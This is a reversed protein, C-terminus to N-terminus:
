VPARAQLWREYDEPYDFDESLDDIHRFEGPRVEESDLPLCQTARYVEWGGGRPLEGALLLGRVRLIAAALRGHAAPNVTLGFLEGWECGTVRSPGSRGVWCMERPWECLADACDDSLYADGYVITTPRDHAWWQATSLFKDTDCQVFVPPVAFAGPIDYRPDPPSLVVIPAVKRAALQTITRVLLPEGDVEVLHKPVDRHNGWRSALGAAM